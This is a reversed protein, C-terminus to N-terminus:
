RNECKVGLTKCQIYVSYALFLMVMTLLVLEIHAEGFFNISVAFTCDNFFYAWLFTIFLILSLAFGLICSSFLLIKKKDRVKLSLLIDGM